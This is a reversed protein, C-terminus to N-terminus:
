LYKLRRLTKHSKDNAQAAQALARLIFLMSEWCFTINDIYLTNCYIKKVPITMKLQM